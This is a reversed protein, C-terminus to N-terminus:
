PGGRGGSCGSLLRKGDRIRQPEARSPVCLREREEQLWGTELGALRPRPEARRQPTPVVADPTPPVLTRAESHAAGARAEGDDATAAQPGKQHKISVDGVVGAEDPSATETLLLCAKEDLVSHLLRPRKHAQGPSCPPARSELGAGALGLDPM